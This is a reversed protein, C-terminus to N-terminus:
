FIGKVQIDQLPKFNNLPFHISEQGKVVTSNLPVQKGQKALQLAQLEDSFDLQM